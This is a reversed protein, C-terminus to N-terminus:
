QSISQSKQQQMTEKLPNRKNHGYSKNRFVNINM